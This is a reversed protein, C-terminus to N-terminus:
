KYRPAIRWDGLNVATGDWQGYQARTVFISAVPLESGDNGDAYTGIATVRVVAPDGDFIAKVVQALQRQAQRVVQAKDLGAGVPMTLTVEPGKGLDSVEAKWEGKGVASPRVSPITVGAQALAVYRAEPTDAVAPASTPAPATTPPSVATVEPVVTNPETTPNVEVTTPRLAISTGGQNRLPGRPGFLAVIVALGIACVVILGLLGLIVIRLGRRMM